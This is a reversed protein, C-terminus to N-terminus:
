GLEDQLTAIENFATQNAWYVDLYVKYLRDYLKHQDADPAPGPSTQVIRAVDDISPLAGLGVLALGAAGFASAEAEGTLNMSRGLVDALMQRWFASKTFGGAARLETAPGAVEDLADVISRMRYCVGELVSRAVHPPGMHAALGFLVGRASANWFPSREGTLFPLFLLGGSGASARIATAELTPFDFEDSPAPPGPLLNDRVWRGALGGNNIAAGVIWRGSALYYCWTRGQPDLVPQDSALRAAGSTGIMVTMQGPSIAGSGLSSLVGDGAGAIVPTGAPIGIAAAVDEALGGATDTPDIVDPLRSPDIGIADLVDSDWRGEHLNFLGSASAVSRDVVLRGTLRYIVYDKISGFSAAATFREPQEERLWLIKGPLYMPHIPCGTREYFSQAQGEVSRLRAVQPRARTDAWIIVKTLPEHNRDVVLLSHFITSLGIGAVRRDAPIQARLESMAGVIAAWVAEPDQEAWGPHATELAHDHHASALEQGTMSYLVARVGSTGVDLGIVCDRTM